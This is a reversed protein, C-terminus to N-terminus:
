EWIMACAWTTAGSASNGNSLGNGLSLYTHATSGVLTASFTTNIPLEALIVTCLFNSYIARPSPHAHLYVQRETPGSDSATVNGPVACFSTSAAFVTATSATRIARKIMVASPTTGQISVVYGIGAAAGTSDVMKEIAFSLAAPNVGGTAGYKWVMGFFDATRSIYTPYSGGGPANNPFSINTRPYLTGTITGAGDSGTGVTLWFSPHRGIINGNYWELKFYISSDAFRWVEYGVLVNVAPLTVTTWNTQGTDATQVLGVTTLWGNMETGVVRLEATTTLLM